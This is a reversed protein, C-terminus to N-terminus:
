LAGPDSRTAWAIWSDRQVLEIYGIEAYLTATERHGFTVRSLFGIAAFHELMARQEKSLRGGPAKIENALGVCASEVAMPLVANHVLPRVLVVLDPVGATVGDAKRQAAERTGGVLAGENPCHFFPFPEVYGRRTFAVRLEAVARQQIRREPKDRGPTMRALAVGPRRPRRPASM